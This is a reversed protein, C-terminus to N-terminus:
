KLRLVEVDRVELRGREVCLGVSGANTPLGPGEIILLGDAYVRGFGGRNVLVLEIWRGPLIKYPSQALVGGGGPATQYLYTQWTALIAESARTDDRNVRVQVANGSVLRLRVRVAMDGKWTKKTHVRHWPGDTEGVLLGKEVRWSQPHELVWGKLSGHDFLKLGRANALEAPLLNKEGYGFRALLKLRTARDVRRRMLWEWWERELRAFSRGLVGQCELCHTYLRKVKEIGFEDILFSVFSGAVHYPHVGPEKFKWWNRRLDVLRPMRSVQLYVAAYDDIATGADERMLATALGEVFFADPPVSEEDTPIQLAFLHVMEHADDYDHAIHTSSTGNSFAPAPSGTLENLRPIDRHLFVHMRGRYEMEMAKELDGLFGRNREV